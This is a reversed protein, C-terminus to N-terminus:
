CLARRGSLACINGSQSAFCILNPCFFSFFFYIFYKRAINIDECHLYPIQIKFMIKIVVARRIDTIAKQLFSVEGTRKNAQKAPHCNHMHLFLLPPPFLFAIQVQQGRTEYTQASALAGDPRVVRYFICSIERSGHGVQLHMACLCIQPHAGRM